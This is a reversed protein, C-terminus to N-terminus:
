IGFIKADVFFVNHIDITYDQTLIEDTTTKIDLKYSDKKIYEKLDDPTTELTITSGANAPIDNLWAIKKDDLSDAKITIEISKLFSFDEGDPKSVTMEMTKLTIKEILDKNTENSEFSSESNTTIDPTIINFPLNVGVTAPIDISTDFNMDFQTLKDLKECGSLVAVTILLFIINKM